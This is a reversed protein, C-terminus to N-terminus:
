KSRSMPEPSAAATFAAHAHLQGCAASIDAGKSQRVITTYHNKVLINQFSLVQEPSPSRFESGPYANFPILNIKARVNRLLRSLAEAQEPRDNIGQLLLYEFTIMRRHPLPFHRCAEMLVELPYPKNVPMLLNRTENDPAHLSIALNVTIDKGLRDMQPVLGCTSVTVKRSSFGPGEDAFLIKLARLLNEYNALPEGMGMFVLNTLKDEPGLGARVALIQGVIESVRLNRVFGGQGTRCFRCGMACGVQSSVCLTHHDREPILVSEIRRGDSLGFLFKRTGDASREITVPEIRSLYSLDSLRQRLEAKLNTMQAFSTVDNRFLWSFIQRARFPELGLSAVWEGLEELTMDRIDVKNEAM